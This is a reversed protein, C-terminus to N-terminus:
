PGDAGNRTDARREDLAERAIDLIIGLRERSPRQLQQEIFTGVGRELVLQAERGGVKRQSYAAGLGCFFNGGGDPAPLRIPALPLRQLVARFIM